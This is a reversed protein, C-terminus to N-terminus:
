KKINSFDIYEQPDQPVENKRIEFHLHPGTARGTEGVYAIVEGSKVHQDKQVLISDCHSYFTQYGDDHQLLIHKGPGKEYTAIEVKGDAAAYVKTGKPAAIDIGNHHVIKQEYPDKMNGYLATVRGKKIPMAFGTNENQLPKTNTITINNEAAILQKTIISQNAQDDLANEAMPLFLIGLFFLIGFMLLSEYKGQMKKGKLNNIRYMLKKRQSGFGPLVDIEEAGFLNLKLVTMIGNGYNTASIKNRSLVMSDCICERSLSIKSNVYWVVPNFFYIVQLLSQIKIWLTDHRQIHCLEHALISELNDDNKTEVTMWPLYIIPKLFGVTFPSLYDNSSVIQVPRRISLQTCWEKAINLINQNKVPDANKIIRHFRTLKRVYITLFIIVGLFWASFLGGCLLNFQFKKLTLASSNRHVHIRQDGISIGDVNDFESWGSYNNLKVYDLFQNLREYIHLKM